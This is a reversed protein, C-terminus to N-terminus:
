EPKVFLVSANQGGFGFSNVLAGDIQKNKAKLPVLDLDAIEPIVNELNITPHIFGNITQLVTAIAGVAGAAGLLHGIMSKTSNISVNSIKDGFLKRVGRMEAVDGLLTSTGHANVYNVRSLDFGTFDVAKKMAYYGGLGDPHPATLHHADASAGFGRIEALVKSGRKRVSEESELVLVGGGEAMVFGDHDVDFPRSAREPEDNRTSLARMKAFGAVTLPILPAESGGCVMVDCEDHVIKLYAEGISHLSSACASVICYNPGMMGHEMGILGSAINCILMPVLFPSVRSPGSNLIVNHEDEFAKIGGIGTSVIVGAREPAFDKNQLGAMQCAMNAASVAFQAYRDQRRAEKKNMYLGADFNKVQGAIKVAHDTTDYIDILGVGSKGEKLATTFDELGIANPSIVGMGTVFVRRM